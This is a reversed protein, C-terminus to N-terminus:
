PIAFKQASALLDLGLAVELVMRCGGAVVRLWERKRERRLLVWRVSSAYSNALSSDKM